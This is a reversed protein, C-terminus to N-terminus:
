AILACLCVIQWCLCFAAKTPSLAAYNETQSLAAYSETGLTMCVVISDAKDKDYLMYCAEGKSASECLDVLSPGRKLDWHPVILSNCHISM